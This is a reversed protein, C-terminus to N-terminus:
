EKDFYVIDFHPNKKTANISELEQLVVAVDGNDTSILMCEEREKNYVTDKAIGILQNGNNFTLQIQMHFTCAIEIYDHQNCTIM